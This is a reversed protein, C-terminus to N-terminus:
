HKHQTHPKRHEEVPLPRAVLQDGTWPTRGVTRSRTLSTFRFCEHLRGLGSNPIYFWLLFFRELRVTPRPDVWFHNGAIKREEARSSFYEVKWRQVKKLEGRKVKEWVYRYGLYHTASSDRAYVRRAESSTNTAPEETPWDTSKWSIWEKM